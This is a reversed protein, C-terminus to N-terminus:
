APKKSFGAAKALDWAKNWVRMFPEDNPDFHYERGTLLEIAEVMAMNADCHDHSHCVNPSPEVRNLDDAEILEEVSLWQQLVEVFKKAMAEPTLDAFPTGPVPKHAGGLEQKVAYDYLRREIPELCIELVETTELRTYWRGRLISVWMNNDLYTLGPGEMYLDEYVSLDAVIRRTRQFEQFTV